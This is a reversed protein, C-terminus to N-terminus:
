EKGIGRSPKEWASATKKYEYLKTWLFKFVRREFWLEAYILSILSKCYFDVYGFFSM